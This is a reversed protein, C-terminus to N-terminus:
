QVITVWGTIKQSGNKLDLVYYYTGFPLPKGKYTGDWPKAYGSGIYILTGYRTYIKLESGTFSDLNVIDWTDNVGDGNPTFTNPILVHVVININVEDSVIFCGNASTATLTYRIDKLPTASPNLKTPDDLYTAPSWSYQVNNGGGVAGKLQVRDGALITQDAGADATPKQEVNVTVM